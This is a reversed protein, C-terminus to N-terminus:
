EIFVLHLEGEPPPNTAQTEFTTIGGPPLDASDSLFIWSALEAGAGDTLSAQLRPVQRPRDTTNVIVGRIVLTRAGGIAQRVSTVDRLDLGEGLTEQLGLLEYLPESGPVLAIIRERALLGGAGIAMVFVALAVWGLTGSDGSKAAVASPRRARSRRRQEDLKDLTDARAARSGRASGQPTDAPVTAPEPGQHWSHGCDGCRVERGEKGVLATDVKFSASCSPCNLIM